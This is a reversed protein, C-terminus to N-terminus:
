VLIRVYHPDFVADSGHVKGSLRADPSRFPAFLVTMVSCNTIDDAAAPGYAFTRIAFAVCRSYPINDHLMLEITRTGTTVIRTGVRLLKLSLNACLMKLFQSFNEHLVGCNEFM